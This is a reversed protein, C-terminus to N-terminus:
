KAAAARLLCDIQVSPRPGEGPRKTVRVLEFGPKACTASVASPVADVPLKKRFRGQEDTFLVYEINPTNLRIVVGPLMSGNDDKASGFYRIGPTQEDANAPNFVYQASAGLTTAMAAMGLLVTVASRSLRLVSTASVRLRANGRM